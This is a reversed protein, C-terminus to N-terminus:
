IVLIKFVPINVKIGLDITQYARVPHSLGIYQVRDIVQGEPLAIEVRYGGLVDAVPSIKENEFSIKFLLFPLYYDYAAEFFPNFFNQFPVSLDIFPNGIVDAFDRQDNDRRSVPIKDKFATIGPPFEYIPYDGLCIFGIQLIYDSVLFHDGLTIRKKFIKRGIMGEIRVVQFDVVPLQIM